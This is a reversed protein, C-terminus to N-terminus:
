REQMVTVLQLLQQHTSKSPTRTEDTNSKRLLSFRGHAKYCNGNKDQAEGVVDLM